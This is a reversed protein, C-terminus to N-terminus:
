LSGPTASKKGLREACHNLVYKRVHEPMRRALCIDRLETLALNPIFALVRAFPTLPNRVLALRLHYRCSWKEHTAILEVVGPPLNERTLVRVLNAETLFPNDLAARILERDETVLLAAAVRGTARRALTIKEGRPTATIGKLITEEALMKIETPVAPAHSIRVLDFLYLFKTLPLSILRPTRPHQVLAVKVAYNRHAQPHAALERLAEAPLDKRQLLRLIDREQLNPNRAFAVLVEKNAESFFPEMLNPPVSAAKAAREAVQQRADAPDM